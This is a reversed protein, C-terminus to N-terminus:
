SSHVTPRKGMAATRREGKSNGKAGQQVHHCAKLCPELICDWHRQVPDKRTLAEATQEATIEGEPPPVDTTSGLYRPGEEGVLAYKKAWDCRLFDRRSWSAALGDSRVQEEESLSLARVPCASLCPADCGECPNFGKVKSETPEIEADTVIAVYRVRADFEPTIVFGARGIVGLGAAAAAFRNCFIDPASLRPNQTTSGCGCLDYTIAARYGRHELERAITLADIGLERIAAYQSFAYPGVADAPPEGARGLNPEPYSMGLVIVSRAGEVWDSPGTLRARERPAIKPTMKGHIPGTEIVNVRLTEEDVLGRLQHAIAELTEAPVVGVLEAGFDGMLHELDHATPPTKKAQRIFDTAGPALPAQTLITRFALRKGYRPSVLAGDGDREGLGATEAGAAPSFRTRIVTYYGWRELARALGFDLHDLLLGAGWLTGQCPEALPGCASPASDEPWDIGVTIVSRCGPLHERPDEPSGEEFQSVDAIGIVAMRGERAVQKVRETLRRDAPADQAVEKLESKDRLHPPRCYKLCPGQVGGRRGHEALQEVIVQEDIHEPKDLYADLGFHESWACRWLNKRAYRFEKGEINLVVEGDVEHALAGGCKEECMKVCLDCRDCLPPGDYMPDPELPADTFMCCFRQWTGFEPTIMLGHYGIEGLGCCAAAHINSIDPGFPREVEKYPRYRWINTAAIPMARHGQAELWRALHFQVHEGVESLTGQVSYPGTDHATPVGGLEVCANPHHMGVVVVFRADPMHGVPNMQIPADKWRSVPGIGVLDAGMEVARAKLEATLSRDADAM